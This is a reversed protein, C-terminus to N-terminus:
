TDSMLGHKKGVLTGFIREDVCAAALDEIRAIICDDLQSPNRGLGIQRANEM